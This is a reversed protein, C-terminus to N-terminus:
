FFLMQGKISCATQLCQSVYRLRRTNHTLVEKEILPLEKWQEPDLFPKKNGGKIYLFVTVLVVSLIAVVIQFPELM